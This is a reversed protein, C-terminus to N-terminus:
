MDFTVYPIALTDVLDVVNKNRWRMTTIFLRAVEFLGRFDVARLIQFHVIRFIVVPRDTSVIIISTPYLSRNSIVGDVKDQCRDNKTQNLYLRMFAPM